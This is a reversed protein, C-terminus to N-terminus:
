LFIISLLPLIVPFHAFCYLPIATSADAFTITLADSEGLVCFALRSEPPLRTDPALGSLVMWCTFASSTDLRLVLYM